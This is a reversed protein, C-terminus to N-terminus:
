REDTEARKLQRAISWKIMARIQRVERPSVASQTLDIKIATLWRDDAPQYGLQDRLRDAMDRMHAAGYFIAVSRMAPEQEIVRRLDDIAVQNRRGVIVEDFGEGYMALAQDTLSEDGLMEILVVKFTDVIAGGVFSDAVRLVGLLLKAIQAPLSTGALTSSMPDFDIDYEALARSLQDVAMDSCRWNPHDYDVAELQFALRLASALESQLSDEASLEFPPTEPDAFLDADAGEGGQEGDAGWSLLRCTRLAAERDTDGDIIMELEPEILRYVLPRGWGDTRAADLFEPLRPDVTAAFTRLEDLDAPCRDRMEQFSAILRAIFELAAQTSAIREEDDEGGAGGTGPPKVSEYLVLDYEDLLKQVAQYFSPDAIHAVGVLAVTPSGGQPRAYERVAIELAISHDKEDAVRLWSPKEDITAAPESSAPLPSTPAPEEVAAAAMPGAPLLVTGLVALTACRLFLRLSRDSM